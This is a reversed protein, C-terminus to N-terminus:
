GPVAGEQVLMHCAREIHCLSDICRFSLVRFEPRKSNLADIIVMIAYIDLLQDQCIRVKSIEVLAHLAFDQADSSKSHFLTVIPKIGGERVLQECCEQSILCFRLIIRGAKKQNRTSKSQALQLTTVLENFTPAPEPVTAKHIISGM